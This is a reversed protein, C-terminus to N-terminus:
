AETVSALDSVMTQPGSAFLAIVFVASPAWEMPLMALMGVLLVPLMGMLLMPLMGPISWEAMPIVPVPMDAIALEGDESLTDASTNAIWARIIASGTIRSRAIVSGTSRSMSARTGEPSPVVIPVPAMGPMAIGDGLWGARRAAAGAAELDVDRDVERDVLDDADLRPVAVFDVCAEAFFGAAVDVGFGAAFGAAVGAGFFGMGDIGPISWLLMGPIPLGHRLIGSRRGLSPAGDPDSQAGRGHHEQEEHNERGDHERV